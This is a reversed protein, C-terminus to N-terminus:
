CSLWAYSWNFYLELPVFWAIIIPARLSLFCNEYSWFVWISSVAFRVMGCWGNLYVMCWMIKNTHSIFTFYLKMWLSTVFSAWNFRNTTTWLLLLSHSCHWQWLYLDKFWSKPSSMLILELFEPNCFMLRGCCCLLKKSYKHM